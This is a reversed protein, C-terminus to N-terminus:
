PAPWSSGMVARAYPREVYGARAEDYSYASNSRITPQLQANSKLEKRITPQSSQARPM